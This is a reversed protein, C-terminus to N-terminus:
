KFKSGIELMKNNQSFQKKLVWITINLYKSINAFKSLQWACSKQKKPKEKQHKYLAWFNNRVRTDELLSLTIGNGSKVRPALGVRGWLEVRTAVMGRTMNAELKAAEKGVLSAFLYTM